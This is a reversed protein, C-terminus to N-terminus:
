LGTLDLLHNSFLRQKGNEVSLLLHLNGVDGPVALSTTWESTEGPPTVPVSALDPSQWTGYVVGDDGVVPPTGIHVTSPYEGPNTARWDLELGADTRRADVLEVVMGNIAPLQVDAPELLGEVPEGIPFGLDPALPELAVELTDDATSAEPDYYNYEGTAYGYDITLSAAADPAGACEVRIRQTEPASAPGDQYGRIQMGPGIRHGGTGVRVTACETTGGPGTLRAPREAAAMTSWRGTDNRLALEIVLDGGPTTEIATPIATWGDGEALVPGSAEPPVVVYDCGALVTTAVLLQGMALRASRRM